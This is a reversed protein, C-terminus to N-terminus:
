HYIFHGSKMMRGWIISGDLWGAWHRFGFEPNELRWSRGPLFFVWGQWSVVTGLEVALLWCGFAMRGAKMM